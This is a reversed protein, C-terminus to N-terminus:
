CCPIASKENTITASLSCLNLRQRVEYILYTDAQLNFTLM